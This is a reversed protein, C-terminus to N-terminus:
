KIYVMNCIISGSYRRVYEEFESKSIYYKRGWSSVRIHTDDMATITMFHAHVSGAPRFIGEPTKAYLRLRERGWIKPFNPGVSFIVPLDRSLMDGVRQWLKGGSICWLATMKVGYLRLFVNLGTVLMVGNIGRTPILPLFRLNLERLLRRYSELPVADDDPLENLLPYKLHAHHRDIYILLDAAAVIGCGCKRINKNDSLMQSGGYTRNLGCDVSCIDHKLAIEGM